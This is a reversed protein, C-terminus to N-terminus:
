MLIFLVCQIYINSFAALNKRLFLCFFVAPNPSFFLSVLDYRISIEAWTAKIKGGQRSTFLFFNHFFISTLLCAEEQM